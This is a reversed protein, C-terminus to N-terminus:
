KDMTSEDSGGESNDRFWALSRRVMSIHQARAARQEDVDDAESLRRWAATIETRLPQPLQAWGAKCALKTRPIRGDCGCPCTHTNDVSDTPQTVTEEM